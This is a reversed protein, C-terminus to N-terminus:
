AKSYIFSLLLLAFQTQSFLQYYYFFFPYVVIDIILNANFPLLDEFGLFIIVIVIVIIIVAVVIFIWIVFFM